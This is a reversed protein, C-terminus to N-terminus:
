KSKSRNKLDGQRQKEMARYVAEVVYSASNTLGGPVGIFEELCDSGARRMERTVQPEAAPSQERAM